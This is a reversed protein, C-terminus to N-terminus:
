GGAAMDIVRDARMLGTRMAVSVAHAQNQVGLKRFIRQKHNEVTKHSILLRVSIERSTCGAGVFSLITLERPTLARASPQDVSDLAYDSVGIVSRFPRETDRIAALIESSGVTRCVVTAMGGRHARDSEARTQPAQTLGIVRAQPLMHSLRGALRNADWETADAELLVVEPRHEACLAVLEGDTGATGVIQIDPQAGLLQGLGERYLRLRQQIAV